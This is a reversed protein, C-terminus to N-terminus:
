YEKVNVIQILKYHDEEDMLRQLYIKIKKVEQSLDSRSSPFTNEDNTEKNQINTENVQILFSHKMTASEQNNEKLPAMKKDKKNEDKQKLAYDVYPIEKYEKENIATYEIANTNLKKAPTFKAKAAL